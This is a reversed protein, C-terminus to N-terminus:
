RAYAASSPASVMDILDRHLRWPAYSPPTAGFPNAGSPWNMVAFPTTQTLVTSRLIPVHDGYFAFLAPVQLRDFAAVIDGIMGDSNRLHASYQEVAGMGPMREATWPGHNEMTVCFIFVPEAGSGIEAVIRQGAAADGVYPGQRAADAFDEEGILKDFGFKPMLEDRAFFRLDHPHIFV